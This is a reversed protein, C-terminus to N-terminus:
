TPRARRGERGARVSEQDETGARRRHEQARELDQRRRDLPPAPHPHRGLRRQEEASRVLRAGNGQRDRRHGPIHYRKYGGEGATFLDLKELFPEAASATIAVLLLTASTLWHLNM